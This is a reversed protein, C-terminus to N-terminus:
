KQLKFFRKVKAYDEIIEIISYDTESIFAEISREQDKGFEFIYVGGERLAQYTWLLWRKPWLLGNDACFLAQHPEFARVSESVRPDDVAIYPPNAVVLDFPGRKMVVSSVDEGVTEHVCEVSQLGLRNKNVRCVALAEESADVLTVQASPKAKAISLGICGSGAGLDLVQASPNSMLVDLAKEVLIETEPRPILVREDVYFTSEFFFQENLIYALPKRAALEVLARDLRGRQDNHLLKTPSLQIASWSLGMVSGLLDELQRKPIAPHKAAAETLWAKLTM